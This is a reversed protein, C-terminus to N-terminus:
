ALSASIKVERIKITMRDNIIQISFQREASESFEFRVMDDM